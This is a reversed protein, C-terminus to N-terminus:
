RDAALEGSPTWIAEFRTGVGFRREDFPTGTMEHTAVQVCLSFHHVGNKFDLVQPDPKRDEASQEKPSGAFHARDVAHRKRQVTAFGKSEHALRPTALGRDAAGDDVDQARHAVADIDTPPNEVVGRCVRPARRRDFPM